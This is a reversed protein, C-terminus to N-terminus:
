ESKEGTFEENDKSATLLQNDETNESFSKSRSNKILESITKIGSSLENIDKSIKKNSREINDLRSEYIQLKNDLDKSDLRVNASISDDIQIKLNDLNLKLEKPIAPPIIKKEVPPYKINRVGFSAVVFIVSLIILIFSLWLIIPKLNNLRIQNTVARERKAIELIHNQMASIDHEDGDPIGDIM